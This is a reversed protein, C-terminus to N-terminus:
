LYRRLCHPNDPFIGHFGFSEKINGSGETSFVHGLSNSAWIFGAKEAIDRVPPHCLWGDEPLYPNFYRTLAAWEALRRSRLCFGGNGVMGGHHPWPAGVYDCRLFDDTWKEPRLIYGDRHIILFHDSQLHSPLVRIVFTNYPAMIKEPRDQLHLKTNKSNIDAEIWEFAFLQKPPLPGCLAKRKFFGPPMIEVCRRLTRVAGDPDLGDLCFLDIM